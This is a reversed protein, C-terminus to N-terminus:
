EISLKDKINGMLESIKDIGEVSSTKISHYLAQSIVKTWFLQPNIEKTNKEATKLTELLSNRVEEPVDKNEAIIRIKKLAQKTDGSKMSALANSILYPWEIKTVKNFASFHFCAGDFNKEYICLTGLLMHYAIKKIVTTKITDPMKNLLVSAKVSADGALTKLGKEYLALAELSNALFKLDKDDSSLDQIIKSEAVAYEPKNNVAWSFGILLRLVGESLVLEDEHATSNYVLLIPPITNESLTKYSKFKLSSCMTDYAKQEPNKDSSGCSYFLLTLFSLFFPITYFVRYINNRGSFINNTTAMEQKVFICFFHKGSM